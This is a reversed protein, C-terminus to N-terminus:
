SGREPRDGTWAALVLRQIEATTPDSSLLRLEHAAGSMAALAVERGVRLRTASLTSDAVLRGIAAVYDTGSRQLDLIPDTSATSVSAERSGSWLAHGLAGFLVLAAAAAVRGIWGAFSVPRRTGAPPGRPTLRLRLAAELARPASAAADLTEIGAVIERTRAVEMRCASCTALHTEEEPAGDEGTAIEYIRDDSLHEAM